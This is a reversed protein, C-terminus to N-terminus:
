GEGKVNENIYEIIKSKPWFGRNGLGNATHVAGIQNLLNKYQWCEWKTVKDSLNEKVRNLSHLFIGNKGIVSDDIGKYLEEVVLLLGSVESPSIDIKQEDETQLVKLSEDETKILNEPPKLSDFPIIKGKSENENRYTIIESPETLVAQLNPIPPYDWVPEASDMEPQIENKMVKLRVIELPSIQSVFPQEAEPKVEHVMANKATTENEPPEASEEELKVVMPKKWLGVYVMLLSATLMLGIIWQKPIGTLDAVNTFMDKKVVAVSEFATIQPVNLAAQYQENLSKLDENLSIYNPGRGNNKTFEDNVQASKDTVQKYLSDIRNQRNTNTQEVMDARAEQTAIETIFLGAGTPLALLLIYIINFAAWWGWTKKRDDKQRKKLAMAYGWVWQAEYEVYLGFPGFLCKLWWHPSINLFGYVVFVVAFFFAPKNRPLHSWFTKWKDPSKIKM